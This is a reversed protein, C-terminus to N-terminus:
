KVLRHTIYPFENNKKENTRTIQIVDGSKYNYFRSIPDTVLMLSWASGYKAKFETAKDTPLRSHEPVLEHKTINYQLEKQTFLEIQIDVSNEVLKKTMPTICDTYVIICHNIKMKHLLIIYEKIRDVNFKIVPQKFAVIHCGDPKTGTIKDDDSNTIKYGRQTLMETVTKIAIEM